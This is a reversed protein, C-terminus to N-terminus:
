EYKSTIEEFQSLHKHAIEVARNITVFRLVSPHNYFAVERIEGIPPAVFIIPKNLALAAGFEIHTGGGGPYLVILVDADMVGQLEKKAVEKAIKITEQDKVDIKGHTTWDYTVEHGFKELKSIVLQAQDANDLTTAVYYKGQM